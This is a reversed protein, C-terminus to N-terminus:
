PVLGVKIVGTLLHGFRDARWTLYIQPLQEDFQLFRLIQGMGFDCFAYLLGLREDGLVFAALATEVDNLEEVHSLREASIWACQQSLEEAVSDPAPGAQLTASMAM